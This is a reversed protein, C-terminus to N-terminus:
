TMLQSNMDTQLKTCYWFAKFLKTFILSCSFYLAILSMGSFMCKTCGTMGLMDLAGSFCSVLVTIKVLILLNQPCSESCSCLAHTFAFESRLWHCSIGFIRCCTCQQKKWPTDPWGISLLIHFSASHCYMIKILMTLAQAARSSWFSHNWLSCM